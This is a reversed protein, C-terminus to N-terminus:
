WGLGHDDVRGDCLRLLALLLFGMGDVADCRNERPHSRLQDGVRLVTLAEDAVHHALERYRPEGLDDAAGLLFHISRGYHEAYGGQGNRAPLSREIVTAWNVVGEKFIRDGTARYALLCAEACPMPYDHAPFLPEWPDAWTGPMYAAAQPERRHEGNTVAVRGRFQQHQQDWAHELWAALADCAMQRLAGSNTADAARLLCGAWLGVESSCAHMDWREILPSVPMLGTKADRYSFSFRAVRQALDAAASDGTTSALWCLSECLIGGSEIFAYGSRRDAHRNFEGTAADHLHLDHARLAALTAESNIRHLLSWPVPLPRTEHYDGQETRPDIPYPDEVGAFKRVEGTRIDVFYHNGWLLLGTASVCRTLLEAICADAAEAWRSEGLQAGAAHCAAFLPLDWYPNSGWPAEISRYCRKAVGAAREAEAYRGTKLDLASVWLASDAPGYGRMPAHGCFWDLHSAILKKLDDSQTM